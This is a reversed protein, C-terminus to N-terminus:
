INAFLGTSFNETCRFSSLLSIWLLAAPLLGNAFYTAENWRYLQLILTSVRM